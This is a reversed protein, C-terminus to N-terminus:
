NDAIFYFLLLCYAIFFTEVKFQLYKKCCSIIVYKNSQVWHQPEVAEGLLHKSAYLIVKARYWM